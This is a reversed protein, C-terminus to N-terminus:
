EWQAGGSSSFLTPNRKVITIYEESLIRAIVDLLKQVGKHDQLSSITNDLNDDYAPWHNGVAFM